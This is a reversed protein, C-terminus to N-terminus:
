APQEPLDDLGADRAAAAMIETMAGGIGDALPPATHGELIQAIRAQIRM